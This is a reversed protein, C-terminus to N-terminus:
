RPWSTRPPPSTSSTPSATAPRRELADDGHPHRAPPCRIVDAASTCSRSREPNSKPGYRPGVGRRQPIHRTALGTVHANAPDVRLLAPSQRAIVLRRERGLRAARRHRAGPIATCRSNLSSSPLLRPATDAMSEHGAWSDIALSRRCLPAWTARPGCSSVRVAQRSASSGVPLVAGRRRRFRDPDDVVRESCGNRRVPPVTTGLSTDSTIVPGCLAAVPMGPLFRNCRDPPRRTRSASEAEAPVVDVSEGVASLHRRRRFEGTHHERDLRRTRRVPSSSTQERDAPEDGPM